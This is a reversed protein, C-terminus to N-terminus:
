SLLALSLTPKSPKMENEKVARATENARRSLSGCNDNVLRPAYVGGFHKAGFAQVAPTRVLPELGPGFNM